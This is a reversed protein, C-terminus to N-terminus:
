RLSTTTEATNYNSGISPTAYSQYLLYSMSGFCGLLLVVLVVVAIWLRRIKKKQRAIIQEPKPQKPATNTKKTPERVPLTVRVDPGIPADTSMEELCAACFVGNAATERGCKLCAM